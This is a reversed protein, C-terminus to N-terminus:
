RQTQLKDGCVNWQRGDSSRKMRTACELDVQGWVGSVSHQGLSAAITLSFSPNIRENLLYKNLVQRAAFVALLLDFSVSLRGPYFKHVRPFLPHMFFQCSHYTSHSQLGPPIHPCLLFGWRPQAYLTNQWPATNSPDVPSFTHTNTPTSPYKGPLGLHSFNQTSFVTYTFGHQLAPRYCIKLLFVLM